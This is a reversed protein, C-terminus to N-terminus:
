DAFTLIALGAFLSMLIIGITQRRRKSSATAAEVDEPSFRTYCDPCVSARVDM